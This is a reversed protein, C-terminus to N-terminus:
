AVNADELVLSNLFPNQRSLFASIVISIAVTALLLYGSISSNSEGKLM